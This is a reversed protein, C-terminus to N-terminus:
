KANVLTSYQPTGIRRTITDITRYLDEPHIPKSIYSDMGAALCREQDGKIASATIAIIPVHRGTSKEAERIASTAEFGDMEPMQVDMIVLDFAGAGFKELAERGNGAVDVQYNRKELLGIAVRQNIPNDEAVLVHLLPLEDSSSRRSPSPVDVLENRAGLIQTVADRLEAQGIPKTLYAAIGLKRCREADGVRRDSTLMMITAGTLHPDQRIQDVLAFGDIEPMRADVLLLPFPHGDRVARDLMALAIHADGALAPRMLWSSLLDGLIRRNTENDDVVLVPLNALDPPQLCNEGFPRGELLPVTFHFTSGQGSASELWFRGGMADVLRRSITLGLGTGGYRRAVSSDAQSFAEFIAAKKEPAIGIGTDRVLFHLWPKDSQDSETTVRLTVEGQDTFKIANGVLNIIIQRLRTQDGVVYQPLEPQVDCNLELGKQHARVGLTKLTPELLDRLHFDVSELELKGAEIKSFDLIDNIIGLLSDASTKIMGLYERQEPTLDTDLALETMGIIGNMPTRIEHSMNALFESKARSATEATERAQKLESEFLRRQTIDMLAGVIRVPRGASDRLVLARDLVDAYTGDRRRFRYEETWSVAGSELVGSFSATVHPLDDPHIRNKWSELDPAANGPGAGFKDHLNDNWWVDGTVLDWDWLGDATARSALQFRNESCELARQARVKASALRDLALGGGILFVIALLMAATVEVTAKRALIGNNDIIGKAQRVQLDELRAIAASEADVVANYPASNLITWGEADRGSGALAAIQAVYALYAKRHASFQDFTRQEEPSLGSAAYEAVRQDIHHSLTELQDGFKARQEIGTAALMDRSAIRMRQFSVAINSLVPLPATGTQFLAQDARAMEHLNFICTIGVLFPILAAIAIGTVIRTRLTPM